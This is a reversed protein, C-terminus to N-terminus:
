RATPMPAKTTWTDTAPDYAEVTNLIAFGTSGGVAYVIGHSVGAALGDRATPMSAKTTWNGALQPTDQVGAVQVRPAPAPNSASTCGATASTFAFAIMTCVITFRRSM